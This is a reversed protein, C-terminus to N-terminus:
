KWPFDALVTLNPHKQLISAPVEMSIPGTLAQHLIAQKSEGNAILILRKSNMITQIGMTVAVKPIALASEQSFNDKITSQALWVCHTWSAEQTGPENFAIHGNRGIGIITLDLGGHSAILGDYDDAFRPNFQSDPCVGAAQYLHTQLYTSFSIEESADIYDDLAFCKVQSWDLSKNQSWQSLLEYCRIPTRGTPLGLNCNPKQRIEEAVAQAVQLSLKEYPTDLIIERSLRPLNYSSPM